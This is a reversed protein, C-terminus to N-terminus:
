ASIWTALSPLMWGDSVGFGIIGRSGSSGNSQSTSIPSIMGGNTGTSIANGLSLPIFVINPNGEYGPNSALFDFVASWDTSGYAQPLRDHVDM